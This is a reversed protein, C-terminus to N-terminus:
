KTRQSMKLLAGTPCVFRCYPRDVFFSMLLVSAGLIIVPTSASTFIFVSFVEYQMLDLGVGLWMLFLLSLLILDRMTTMAKSVRPSPTISMKSTKSILEQLAGMPCHFTCYHSKKGLLPLLMAAATLMLTVIAGVLNLGNSLWNVWLSLSLFSGCWLGLVVVNLILLLLRLRKSQTKFRSMLIPMILGLFVVLLGVVVKISLLPIDLQNYTQGKVYAAVQKMTEIIAVSSMTAGSVADVRLEEVEAIPLGDWRQLLGDDIVVAMFEESESHPLLTVSRVTDDKLYVKLPVVGGYGYVNSAITAANIVLTGDELWEETAPKPVAGQVQWLHDTSYGLIKGNQRVAVTLLLVTIIALNLCYRFREM